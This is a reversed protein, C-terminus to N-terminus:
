TPPSPWSASVLGGRRLRRTVHGTADLDGLYDYIREGAVNRHILAKPLREAVDSTRELGRLRLSLSLSVPGHRDVAVWAARRGIEDCTGDVLLGDPDAARAGPGM